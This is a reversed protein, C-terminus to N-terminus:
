APAATRPPKGVVWLAVVALAAGVTMAVLVLLGKPRYAMSVRSQGAPVELAMHGAGTPRIPAPRGDVRASWGTDFGERVVLSGAHGAQVVFDLRGPGDGERAVKSSVADSSAPRAMEVFPRPELVRYLHVALPAIESPRGLATLEFGPAEIPDLSLVHGVGAEQLRPLIVVPSRCSALDLPLVRPAPTLMTLDLSLASPVRPGLNLSPTLTERMLAFTWADQDPRLPRTRLYAASQGVDCSFVRGGERLAALHGSMEPSLRYFADTVMPNLGAGARILDGGVLAVLILGAVRPALRRALLAGVVLAASACVLGGRAADAAIESFWLARQEATAEPAFFHLLFWRVTEPAARPTAPVFFLLAAFLALLGALWRWRGREEARPLSDVGRGALLAAALHVLFFAKSPYRFRHLAPAWDVLFGVPGFRGLSVIAGLAALVVLSNRVYGPRSAGLLGLAIALAGLYLSSFYPFGGPFFNQGWFRAAGLAPDGFLGAVVAQVLTMPHISHALVVDAPFGAGRASAAVLGAVIGLPVSALCAGLVIGTGLRVFAAGRSPRALVIGALVAQGAFELATTSLVVAAAAAAWALARAGGKAARSFALILLPATALAEVYVYLSVTSLAFGGLAYVLGSLAAGERGQGLERALFFMAVAALSLHLALLASLGAESSWLVQLLDFPYGVPPLPLPEGEHVFPNWFRVEGSRLGDVVFRRVPFFYVSLDRFYFARGGFVGRAFPLFAAAAVLMATAADELRERSPV